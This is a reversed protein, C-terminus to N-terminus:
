REVERNNWHKALSFPHNKGTSDIKKRREDCRGLRHYFGAATPPAASLDPLCEAPQRRPYRAPSFMVSVGPGEAPEVGAPRGGAGGGATLARVIFVRCATLM